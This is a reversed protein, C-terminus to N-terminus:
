AHARQGLTVIDCTRPASRLFRVLMRYTDPDFASEASAEALEYLDAESHATGLYRWRDLVHLECRDNARNRERIGIRGTYPWPKEALAESASAGNGLRPKRNYVPALAKVLQAQRIHAGLTGATDICEVRKVEAAIRTDRARKKAGAFHAMVRSRISVGGGVFLVVGAEGHLVYVGPGEPLTEFINAPLGAPVPTKRLLDACASELADAGLERHWIQALEWLVQADGLARHRDICFIAHRFILADLNHRRHQPFLRRSLKVTCLVAAEYRLASREFEAKLFGYDFRANHAALVKGALRQALAASVEEFRPALAVMEDTIGTLVQIAQPIHRGPNVLSSWDGIVRGRDV